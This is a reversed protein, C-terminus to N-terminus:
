EEKAAYKLINLYDETMAERANSPNSNNDASKQAIEPYSKPPINLDRFRPISLEHSLQRVKHILRRGAKEPTSDGLGISSALDGYRSAAATLNFEMVYPLFVANAVGHPTDFLAGVSESICHVGGVDSNGFAMGALVSARMIGDRAEGDNQIDLFARKLYQFGLRVAERAFADTIFTAPKVSYAEIAHVMADMGTSAVLAPPLSSLLEPDVLAVAPFMDPGKISMKFRREAHTIVSVWTVESGTGCTTPVAILPLPPTTYQGRGEYDEIGGPNVALLAVAKAADLASGGGLGIILSVGSERALAGARDVTHHRPNPEIEDFIVIHPLQEQVLAVIGSRRIGSDTVLLVREAGFDRTVIDSLRSLSGPGYEIRTPNYFRANV